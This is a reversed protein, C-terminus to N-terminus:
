KRGRQQTTKGNSDGDLYRYTTLTASMRLLRGHKASGSPKQNKGQEVPSITVDHVTVIRPLAAVGSVFTALEHYSGTVQIQNPLEAYFNKKVEPKPKFLKETLGAAARTQSIDNLLNAVESKSPLQKLMKGFDRKMTALQVQYAHLNAVKHQKQEFERKLQAERVRAQNLTAIQPRIMFWYGALVIALCVLFTAGIRAFMPWSGIDNVDLGRLEDVLQRVDININVRRVNM